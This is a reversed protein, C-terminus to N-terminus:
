IKNNGQLIFSNDLGKLEFKDENSCAIIFKLNKCLVFDFFNTTTTASNCYQAFFSSKEVEENEQGYLRRKM